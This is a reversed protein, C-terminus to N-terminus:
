RPVGRPPVPKYKSHLIQRIQEKNIIGSAYQAMLEKLSPDFQMPRLIQDYLKYLKKAYNQRDVDPNIAAHLAYVFRNITSQIEAIQIHLWDGGPSRFEVYDDRLTISLRGQIMSSPLSVQDFHSRFQDFIKMLEDISSAASSRSLVSQISKQTSPAFSSTLRHFQQLVYIDGSLLALKTLDVKNESYGPVSVNIHLGCKRNTYAHNLTAWRYVLKLAKDMDELSLPPSILELGFDTPNNPQTLSGDPELLWTDYTREIGHYENSWKVPAQLLRQIDNAENSLDLDETDFEENVYPWKEDLYEVSFDRMTAVGLQYAADESNFRGDMRVTDEWDSRVRAMTREDNLDEEDDVHKEIFDQYDRRGNPGAMWTDQLKTIIDTLDNELEDIGWRIENRSINQNVKFFDTIDNKYNSWSIDEDRSLDPKFIEEPVVNPVYMEFEIGVLADIHRVQSQLHGPSMKLEQLTVEHIRM